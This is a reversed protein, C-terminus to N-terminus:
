PMKEYQAACRSAVVGRSICRSRRDRAGFHAVAKMRIIKGVKEPALKPLGAIGDFGADDVDGAPADAATGEPLNGVPAALSPAPVRDRRVGKGLLNSIGQSPTPGGGRGFCRSNPVRASVPIWRRLFREGHRPPDQRAPYKQAVRLGVVRLWGESVADSFRNMRSM